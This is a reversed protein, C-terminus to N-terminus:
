KAIGYMRITGTAINGTSMFFRIANVATFSRYWGSFQGNGVYGVPGGANITLDGMITKYMTTSGPQYLRIQGCIGTNLSHNHDGNTTTIKTAAESGNGEFNFRNRSHYYDDYNTGSDYTAGGDTSMQILLHSDATPQVNVIEFLYQDYTASIGTTFDLSTSGAATHQELLVLAGAAGGGGSSAITLQNGADNYTLTVNTGNQLFSAIMDQIQEDTPGSSGTAAITITDSGDNPTVTVNTGSVLAAGIIDRVDEATLGASDLAWATGNFQQPVGLTTNFLRWGILPARYHWAAEDYVALENPHTPHAAALVYVDGETPSGPETTVVDIFRGQTLVSLWLLNSDMDDKWNDEGLLWDGKLAASGALTRSPM